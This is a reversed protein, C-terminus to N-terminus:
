RFPDDMRARARRAARAARRELELLVEHRAIAQGSAQATGEAEARLRALAILRARREAAYWRLWRDAQAAAALADADDGPMGPAAPRALMAERQRDLEAVRAAGEAEARRAAGLRARAAQAQLGALPVLRAIQARRRATEGARM